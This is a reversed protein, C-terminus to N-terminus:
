EDHRFVIKEMEPVKIGGKALLIDNGIEIGDKTTEIQDTDSTISKRRGDLIMAIGAITDILDNRKKEDASVVRKKRRIVGDSKANTSRETKTPLIMADRETNGDKATTRQIMASSRESQINIRTTSTMQRMGLRVGQDHAM